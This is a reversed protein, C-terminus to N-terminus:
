ASEKPLPQLEILLRGLDVFQGKECNVQEIVADIPAELKFEMKMAEMIVLIQGTQVRQGPQTRVDIIKGTMPAHLETEIPQTSAADADKRTFEFFATREALSVWVGKESRVVAARRTGDPKRILIEQDQQTVHAEIESLAEKGEPNLIKAGRLRVRGDEFQDLHLEYTVSGHQLHFTRSRM